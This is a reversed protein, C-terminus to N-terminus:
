LLDKVDVGVAKAFKRLTMVRPDNVRNLFQWAARRAKEGEYGMRVGLEDLTLQSEEFAKRARVISPDPKAM